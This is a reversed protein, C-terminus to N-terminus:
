VSPSKCAVNLLAFVQGCKKVASFEVVSSVGKSGKRREPKKGIDFVSFTFSAKRISRKLVVSPTAERDERPETM